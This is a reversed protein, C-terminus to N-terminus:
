NLLFSALNLRWQDPVAVLELETIADIMLLWLLVVAVIFEIWERRTYPGRFLERIPHKVLSVAALRQPWGDDSASGGIGGCDCGSYGDNRVVLRVYRWTRIRSVDGAGVAWCRCHPQCRDIYWYGM